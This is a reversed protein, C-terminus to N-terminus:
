GRYDSGIIVRIDATTGAPRTASTATVGFRNELYKLTYPKKGGSYDYIITTSYTHKDADAVDVVNYGYTKLLDGVTTALSARSTGNQVEIGAAETKIYGDAFISHALNQIATYNFQGAAPFEVSAGNVEGFVLLGAPTTDLVKNTIKNKDVDKVLSIVKNIEWIQLDTKVHDGLDDILANVKAPNTLTQTSLAKERMAVLVKQQRAARDFDSTTERSRSYRLATLGSMHQLGAKLSFVINRCGDCSDDPYYPDYLPQDVMVNIGGLDDVAKKLGSFDARIFYHIPIGLVNSVVQKALAPGGGPYNYMDGYADAANIKAQGYGPIKVWLDRPVSLMAVDKTKPDISIVMMTDSLDAGPHGVDGIGLLLINVRGEGEGKLQNVDLDGLLGPASGTTNRTIIKHTAFALKVAFYGITVLIIIAIAAGIRKKYSRRRRNRTRPNYTFTPEASPKTAAIPRTVAPRVSTIDGLSPRPKPSTEM